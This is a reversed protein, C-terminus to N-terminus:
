EHATQADNMGNPKPLKTETKDGQKENAESPTVVQVPEDPLVMKRKNQDLKRDTPGTVAPAIMRRAFNAMNTINKSRSREGKTGPTENPQMNDGSQTPAETITVVPKVSNEKASQGPDAFPSGKTGIHRGVAFGVLVLAALAVASAPRLWWVATKPQAARLASKVNFAIRQREADSLTPAENGLSSVVLGRSELDARCAECDQAHLRVERMDQPELDGYLYAGMMERIQKCKM